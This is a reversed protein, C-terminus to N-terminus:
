TTCKPRQLSKNYSNSVILLLLEIYMLCTTVKTGKSFKLGGCFEMYLISSDDRRANKGPKYQCACEWYPTCKHPSM